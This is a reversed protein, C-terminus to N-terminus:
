KRLNSKLDSRWRAWSHCLGGYAYFDLTATSGLRHTQLSAARFLDVVFIDKQPKYSRPVVWIYISEPRDRFYARHEAPTMPRGSHFSPHWLQPGDLRLRLGTPTTGWHTTIEQPGFTREAIHWEPPLQRTARSALADFESRPVPVVEVAHAQLMLTRLAAGLFLMGVSSTRFHNGGGLVATM